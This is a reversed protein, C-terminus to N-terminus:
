EPDTERFVAPDDERDVYVLSVESRHQDAWTRLLDDEFSYTADVVVTGAADAMEFFQNASSTTTFCPLRKPGGGPSAPLSTLVDQLTAWAHGADLDRSRGLGDTAKGHQKM